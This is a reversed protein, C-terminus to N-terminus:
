AEEGMPLRTRGTLLEQMMGVKVARASELRRELSQIEDDADKLVSAIALQEKIRPLELDFNRVMGANLNSQTGQQGLLKVRSKLNQLVYYLFERDLGSSVRIGLIAQSSAVRGVALSCEGLSAYMAYLVVDPEYLKAASSTLGAETLTKETVAIYKGGRTMDSISVWPIGGGYYRTVSSPPTGGSGMTAVAGLKTQEWDGSFGPLRTRGALLEQMMGQKVDRKKVILSELGGVLDSVEDLALAIRDQEAKDPVWVPVRELLDQNLTAMTTGTANRLLWRRVDSAHLAYGLYIPNIQGNERGFRIRIGDSGLFWGDEADRVTACRDVAGKRAFVIDGVNLRYVPLRNLVDPGVRRTEKHIRFSGYGVEGVSVVPVGVDSYESARLTTGFPGTRISGRERRVVDGLSVHETEFTV